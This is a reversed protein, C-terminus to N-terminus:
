FIRSRARTANSYCLAYYQDLTWSCILSCILLIHICATLLVLYWTLSHRVNLEKYCNKTYSIKDIFYLESQWASLQSCLYSSIDKLKPSSMQYLTYDEWSQMYIEEDQIGITCCQQFNAEQAYYFTTFQRFGWWCEIWWPWSALAMYLCSNFKAARWPLPCHIWRPIAPQYQFSHENAEEVEM